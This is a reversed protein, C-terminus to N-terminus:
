IRKGGFTEKVDAKWDTPLESAEGVVYHVVEEIAEAFEYEDATLTGYWDEIRSYGPDSTVQEDNEALHRIADVYCRHEARTFTDKLALFDFLPIRNGDVFLYIDAHPVTELEDGFVRYEADREAPNGDKRYKALHDAAIAIATRSTRLRFVLPSYYSTFVESATFNKLVSAQVQYTPEAEARLAEAILESAHRSLGRYVTLGSGETRDLFTQTVCYLDRAVARHDPSTRYSPPDDGRVDCDVDFTQKFLHEHHQPHDHKKPNSSDKWRYHPDLVPCVNELGHVDGLASLFCCEQEFSLARYEVRQDVDECFEPRYTLTTLDTFDLGHETEYDACDTCDTRPTLCDGSLEEADNM